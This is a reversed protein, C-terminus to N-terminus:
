LAKVKALIEEETETSNIINIVKEALLDGQERPLRGVIKAIELRTTASLGKELCTVLLKGRQTQMPMDERM